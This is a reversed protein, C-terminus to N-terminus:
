PSSADTGAVPFSTPVSVSASISAWTSVSVSPSASISVSSSFSTRLVHRECPQHLVVKRERELVRPPPHAVAVRGRLHRREGLLSRHARAEALHGLADISKGAHEPSQPDLVPIPDPRERPVVLAVELEVHRNGTHPRHQVREVDPQEGILEGVDDVVGLILHDEDVLREHRQELRQGRRQGPHTVEDHHGIRSM